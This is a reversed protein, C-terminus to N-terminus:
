KLLRIEQNIIRKCFLVLFSPFLINFYINCLKLISLVIVNKKKKTKLKWQYIVNTKIHILNFFGNIIITIKKISKMTLINNYVAPISVICKNEDKFINLLTIKRRSIYTYLFIYISNTLLPENLSFFFFM